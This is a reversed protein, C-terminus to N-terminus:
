NTARTRIMRTYDFSLSILKREPDGEKWPHTKLLQMFSESALIHLYEYPDALFKVEIEEEGIKILATAQYFYPPAERRYM